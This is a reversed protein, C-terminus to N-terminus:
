RCDGQGPLLLYAITARRGRGMALPASIEVPAADPPAKVGLHSQAVSLVSDQRVRSGDADPTWVILCQGIGARLPPRITPHKADVIRATPLQARFNGALPHPHWDALVTGGGFGGDRLSKAWASYPLHHQCGSCRLPEFAFKVATGATAAIACAAALLAVVRLRSPPIECLRVRLFVLLPVLVLVFMYHTRVNLPRLGLAIAIMLMLLAAFFIALFRHWRLFAVPFTRASSPLRRFIAPFFGLWLVWAPALFGVIALILDGASRAAAAVSFPRGVAFASEPRELMWLLHPLFVAIAVAVTIALRPDYIRRRLQKDALIAALLAVVFVWFAYKAMLGLGIAFGLLAYDFARGWKDIRLVVLMTATYLVAVLISHTYGHISDWGVYYLAFLSLAACAALRDDDLLRRAARWLTLYLLWLLVFRVLVVAFPTPGLATTVGMVLWTYLPPNTAQYGRAFAQSFVLQEGDDGGIGPFLLGRMLLLAVLTGTVFIHFGARSCLFGAITTRREQATMGPEIEPLIAM